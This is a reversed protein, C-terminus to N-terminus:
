YATALHLCSIGGLFNEFRVNQLGAETLLKALTKQDPFCRISEVLYQYAQRDGAVWDGLCPIVQFSYLDYLKQWWPWLTHSFELCAFQGGPRLVRKAEALAAAIDAVNRLGFSITYVDETQSALPLAEAQANIWSVGELIGNNITREQGKAIMALSLDCVVVSLDLYSYTTQLLNVIDGTGGAVDLVLHQPHLRLNRVMTQKWLRHTGLSMLDNMRDYTPAVNQFLDHVRRLKEEKSVKEFGFSTQM